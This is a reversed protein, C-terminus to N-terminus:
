RSPIIRVAILSHLSEENPILHEPLDKLVKHNVLGGLLVWEGETMFVESNMEIRGEARFAQFDLLLDFGSAYEKVKTLAYFKEEQKVENTGNPSISFSVRDFSELMKPDFDKLENRQHYQIEGYAIEISYANEKKAEERWDPQASHSFPDSATLSQLIALLPIIIPYAKM